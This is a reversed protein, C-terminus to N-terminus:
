WPEASVLQEPGNAYASMGFTSWVQDTPWPAETPIRLSRNSGFRASEGRLLQRVLVALDGYGVTDAGEIVAQQATLLRAEPGTVRHTGADLLSGTRLARAVADLGGGENSPATVATTGVIPGSCLLWEM